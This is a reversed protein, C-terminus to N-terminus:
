LHIYLILHFNTSHGNLKVQLEQIEEMGSMLQVTLEHPSEADTLIVPLPDASVKLEAAPPVDSLM